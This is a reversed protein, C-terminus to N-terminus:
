GPFILLIFFFLMKHISIDKTKTNSVANLHIKFTHKGEFFM